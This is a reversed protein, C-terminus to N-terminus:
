QALGVQNQLQNTIQENDPPTSAATQRQALPGAEPIGLSQKAMQIQGLMALTAMDTMQKITKENRYGFIDATERVLDPSMAIQPYTSLFAWLEMYARKREDKAVPSVVTVDINISFDYDDIAESLIVEDWQTEQGQSKQIYFPLVGKEKMTLLIERFISTIWNVVKNSNHSERIKSYRDTFTAQTATTRDTQGREEPTVGAILNLDDKPVIMAQAASAGLDANPVPYVVNSPDGNVGSWTGDPGYELKDLETPDDIKNKDYLYKRLFRRRHIRQGERAENFEDQPSLLNYTFPIPYFGKKRPYFNLAFLPLRDFPEILHIEEQDETLHYKKKGRLDWIKWLKILDGKIKKDDDYADIDDNYDESRGSTMNIKDTNVYNENALIDAVHVWEYYGVWDCKSLIRNHRLASVRFQDAPIHKLYLQELIPVQSPQKLPEDNKDKIIEGDNDLLPKEINPNDIYDTSFGVEVVGFRAFSDNLADAIIEGVENDPDTLYTNLADEKLRAGAYAQESNWSIRGPRPTISAIPENFTLGPKKVEVTSFILNVRYPRYEDETKDTQYHFGEYYDECAKVKFLSEWRDHVKDASKLRNIWFQAIEKDTVVKTEPEPQEQVQDVFQEDTPM